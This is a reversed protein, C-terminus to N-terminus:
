PTVETDREPRVEIIMSGSLVEAAHKPQVQGLEQCQNSQLSNTLTYLLFQQNFRTLTLLNHDATNGEEFKGRDLTLVHLLM